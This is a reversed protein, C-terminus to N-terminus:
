LSLYLKIREFKGQPFGELNKLEALSKITNNNRYEIISKALKDNIYLLNRLENYSAWTVNIKEIVPADVVKFKILARDVVQPELGYVDYLQEAVFFGGLRDRFKVIRESLKDGIGNIIKLDDATAKNLDIRQVLAPKNSRQNRQGVSRRSANSWEPFKFYPAIRELLSDSIQTLEQFEKPSNMFKNQSRFSHLRDIEAVSMGLTYGKYDSIYNPNFPFLRLTDKEIANRKLADIQAQTEADPQFADEFSKPFSRYVYLGLQTLIIFALLFFIGSREEKNFKFHSKLKKM